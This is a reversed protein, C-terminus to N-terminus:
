KGGYLKKGDRDFYERIGEEDEACGLGCNECNFESFYYKGSIKSYRKNIPKMVTECQPCKPFTSNNNDNANNQKLTM